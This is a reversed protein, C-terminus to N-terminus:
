YVTLRSYHVTLKSLPLDLTYLAFPHSKFQKYMAKFCEMLWDQQISHVLMISLHMQIEEAFRTVLKRYKPASMSYSLVVFDWPLIQKLVLLLMILVNEPIHLMKQGHGINLSVLIHNYHYNWLKDFIESKFNTMIMLGQQGEALYIAEM